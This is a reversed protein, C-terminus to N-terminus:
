KEDGKEQIWVYGDQCDIELCDIKNDHYFCGECEGKVAAEVQKM